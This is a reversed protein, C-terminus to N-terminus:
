SKAAACATAALRSNPRMDTVEFIVDVAENGSRVLVRFRSGAILPGPPM